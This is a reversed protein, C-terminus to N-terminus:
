LSLLSYQIYYGTILGSPKRKQYKKQAIVQIVGAIVWLILLMANTM